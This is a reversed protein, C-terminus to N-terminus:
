DVRPTLKTENRACAIFPMNDPDAVPRIGEKKMTAAFAGLDCEFQVHTRGYGLGQDFSLAAIGEFDVRFGYSWGPDAIALAPSKTIEDRTPPTVGTIQRFSFRGRADTRTEIPAVCPKRALFLVRYDACSTILAGAVPRGSWLLTGEILGEVPEWAAHASSTCCFFIVWQMRRVLYTSTTM